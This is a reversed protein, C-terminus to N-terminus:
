YCQIFVEYYAREEYMYYQKITQLLMIFDVSMIFFCTLCILKLSLTQSNEGCM